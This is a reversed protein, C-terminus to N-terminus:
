SGARLALDGSKYPRDAPLTPSHNQLPRRKVVPLSLIFIMFDIMENRVMVVRARAAVANPCSSDGDGVSSFGDAVTSSVGAGEVSVGITVGAGGSLTDVGIGSFDAMGASVFFGAAGAFLADGAAMVAEAALGELFILGSALTFSM